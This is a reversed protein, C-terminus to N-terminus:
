KVQGNAYKEWLKKTTKSADSANDKCKQKFRDHVSIDKDSNLIIMVSRLRIRM